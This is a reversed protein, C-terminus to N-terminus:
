PKAPGPPATMTTTTTTTTSSSSTPPPPPPGTPRGHCAGNGSDTFTAGDVPVFQWDYGAPRLTVKLVGFTTSDRVQSNAIPPGFPNHNAGGTGATFQRVGFSWDTQGAPTQPAFREYVHDHGNIVVEAGHEYLARWFPDVSWTNGHASSSTFRPHHWYALTCPQTSAALDARLWREQPSGPACGGAIKPCTSNLVVIHWSGLDYSYYGGPPGAASGFYAFYPAPTQYYEHNGLAPRTRAKHRGWTPHYCSNFEPESGTMYVNDGTTFVTGPIRDLLAATASDGANSCFSIDGAGVLVPHAPAPAAEASTLAFALLVCAPVIWLVRRAGIPIRHSGPL